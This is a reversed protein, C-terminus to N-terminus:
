LSLADALDLRGEYLTRGLIAGACGLARLTRLDDLTAIGGSAVIAGRGVRAGANRHPLLAEGRAAAPPRPTAPSARDMVM